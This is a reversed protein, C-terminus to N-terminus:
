RITSEWLFLIRGTRTKWRVELFEVQTRPRVTYDSNSGATMYLRDGIFPIRRLWRSVAQQEDVARRWDAHEDRMVLHRQFGETLATPKQPEQMARYWTADIGLAECVDGAWRYVDFRAKSM